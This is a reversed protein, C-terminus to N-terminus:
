IREYGRVRVCLYDDPLTVRLAHRFAVGAAGIHLVDCHQLVTTEGETMLVSAHGNPARVADLRGADNFRTGIAHPSQRRPPVGPEGDGALFPGHANEINVARGRRQQEVSRVGAATQNRALRSLPQDGPTPGAIDVHPVRPAA